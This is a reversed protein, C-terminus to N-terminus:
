NEFLPKATATATYKSIRKSFCILLRDLEILLNFVMIEVLSPITILLSLGSLTAYAFVIFM